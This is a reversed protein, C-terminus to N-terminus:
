AFQGKKGNMEGSDRMKTPPASVSVTGYIVTSIDGEGSTDMEGDRVYGIWHQVGVHRSIDPFGVTGADESARSSLATKDANGDAGSDAGGDALADAGGDVLADVGGDSLADAGRDALTDVGGDAGGNAGRDAFADTCFYEWSDALDDALQVVSIEPTQSELVGAYWAIIWWVTRVIPVAIGALSKLVTASLGPNMSSTM